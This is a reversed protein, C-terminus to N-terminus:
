ITIFEILIDPFSFNKTFINSKIDLKWLDCKILNWNSILVMIWKLYFIALAVFIKRLTKDKKDERKERM